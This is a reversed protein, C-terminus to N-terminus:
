EDIELPGKIRCICSLIYGCEIMDESLCHSDTAWEVKGTCRTMCAGCVGNRCDASMEVGQSELGELIFEGDGLELTKAGITLRVPWKKM